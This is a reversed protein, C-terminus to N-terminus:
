YGPIIFVLAFMYQEFALARVASYAFPGIFRIMWALVYCVAIVVADILMQLRTFNKQNDQIVREWRLGIRQKECKQGFFM